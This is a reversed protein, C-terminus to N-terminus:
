AAGRRAAVRSRMEAVDRMVDDFSPLTQEERPEAKCALCKYHRDRGHQFTDHGRNCYQKLPRGTRM